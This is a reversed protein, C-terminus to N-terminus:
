RRRERIAAVVKAAEVHPGVDHVRIIDAGLYLAVADAALTGALRDRPEPQGTLRGIMSKRSLGVLLPFGFAKL